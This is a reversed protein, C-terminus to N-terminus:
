DRGRCIERDIRVGLMVILSCWEMVCGREGGGFGFDCKSYNEIAIDVIRICFDEFEALEVSVNRLSFSALQEWCKAVDSVLCM